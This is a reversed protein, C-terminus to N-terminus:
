LYFINHYLLLFFKNIDIENKLIDKFYEGNIDNNDYIVKKKFKLKKYHLIFEKIYKNEEKAITCLLIILRFPMKILISIAYFFSIFLIKLKIKQEVFKM